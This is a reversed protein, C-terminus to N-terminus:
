IGSFSCIGNPCEINAYGQTVSQIQPNDDAFNLVWSCTRYLDANLISEEDLWGKEVMYLFVAAGKEAIGPDTLSADEELIADYARHLIENKYDSGARQSQLFISFYAAGAEVVWMPDQNPALEADCSILMQQFGHYLEHFWTYEIQDQTFDNPVAVVVVRRNTCIPIQSASHFGIELWNRIREEEERKDSSNLCSADSLFRNLEELIADIEPPNLLVEHTDVRGEHHWDVEVEGVYDGLPYLIGFIASKRELIMEEARTNWSEIQVDDVDSYNVFSIHADVDSAAQTCSLFTGMVSFLFLLMNTGIKQGIKVLSQRLICETDVILMDALFRLSVKACGYQGARRQM